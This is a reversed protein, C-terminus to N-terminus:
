VYTALWVEPPALHAREGLETLTPVVVEHGAARLLPMMKKWCWGGHWAGHVLVYTAM